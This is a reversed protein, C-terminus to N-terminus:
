AEQEGPLPLNYRMLMWRADDLSLFTRSCNSPSKLTIPGPIPVGAAHAATVRISGGHSFVLATRVDHQAIDELCDVVRSRLEAFTEGGGRRPDEGAAFAAVVRPEEVAISSLLRGSWSGVSVERLREDEVVTAGTLRAYAEATDRARPLDSSWVQELRGVQDTLARAVQEAQKRGCGTLGSDAQGQYREEVNWHSEGHRVMVLQM